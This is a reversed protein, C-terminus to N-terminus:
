DDITITTTVTITRGSTSQQPSTQIIPPQDTAATMLLQNIGQRMTLRGSQTLTEVQDSTLRITYPQTM